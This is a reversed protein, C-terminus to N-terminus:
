ILDVCLTHMGARATWSFNISEKKGADIWVSKRDEEVGDVKFSLHTYGGVGGRNSVRATITVTSGAIPNYNSATLDIIEFSPPRVIELWFFMSDQKVGNEYAYVHIWQSKNPTHLASPSVWHKGYPVSVEKWYEWRDGTDYYFAFDVKCGFPWECDYQIYPRFTYDSPISVTGFSEWGHQCYDQRLYIVEGKENLYGLGCIKGM